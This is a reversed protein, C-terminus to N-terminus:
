LWPAEPFASPVFTAIAAAGMCAPIGIVLVWVLDALRAGPKEVARVAAAVLWAGCLDTLVDCASADRGPTFSQHYEDTIAYCVICVLVIAFTRSDPVLPRGRRVTAMLVFLALAGYEPAHCLNMIWALRKGGGHPLAEAPQASLYFNLCAWAVLLAIALVRPTSRLRLALQALLKV